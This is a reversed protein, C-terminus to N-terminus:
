SLSNSVYIHRLLLARISFMKVHKRWQDTINTSLKTGSVSQLQVGAGSVLDDSVIEDAGAIQEEKQSTAVPSGGIGGRVPDSERPAEEEKLPTQKPFPSSNFANLRNEKALVQHADGETEPVNEHKDM